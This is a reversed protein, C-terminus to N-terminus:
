LKDEGGPLLQIVTVTLLPAIIMGGYREVSLRTYTGTLEGNEKLKFTPRDSHSASFMFGRAEGEPIRFALLASGGRLMYYKGGAALEWAKNEWLRSYGAAELQAQLGAISHYVSHASDLYSMLNRINQDM